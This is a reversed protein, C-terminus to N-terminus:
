QRKLHCCKVEVMNLQHQQVLAGDWMIGELTLISEIRPVNAKTM